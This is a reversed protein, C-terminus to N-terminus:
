TGTDKEAESSASDASAKQEAATWDRDQQGEEDDKDDLIFENVSGSLASSLSAVSEAETTLKAADEASSSASNQLSRAATLSESLKAENEKAKEMVEAAQGKVHQISQAVTTASQSARNMRSSIDDTVERQSNVATTISEVADHITTMLGTIQTIISTAGDSQNRMRGIRKKIEEAANGTEIALSRVQAAVIAFGKGSEGARAAEISANIALMNTQLTIKQILEIVTEIERSADSLAGMTAVAENSLTNAQETVESTSDTSVSIEKIAQMLGSIAETVSTVEGSMGEASDSILTVEELIRTATERSTRANDGMAEAHDRVETSLTNTGEAERKFHESLRELGASSRQMQEAHNRIGLVMNHVQNIFPNFLMALEGAEDGSTEDFRRSLNVQGNTMEMLSEQLAGTGLSAGHETVNLGTIEAEATVRMGVTVELLKFFALSVGFAWIFTVTVGELQVMAQAWVSPAALKDPMAFFALLVTGWAGCVGHVSVAGVVDDLKFVREIVRESFVVIVGASLGIILAGHAGVADCGATIAVLGGLSGNIPRHALKFDDLLLGTVLGGLGGFCAAILTNFIIHAIAPDSTTTSGGNFGIWGVWLAIAGATALVYSHGQIQNVEGNEGFKGIRAGLVIIGALAVWGGVSHVVTSGAFDIFGRDALYAPNDGNLLNGWAWHGSVPYVVLVIFIASLWYAHFKMREAVSGSMITAVTGAFVAQFVFFTYQWDEVESFAFSDTGILGAWSTGFMVGFGLLYFASVSVLFDIINQQAVNISNKSRSMGAEILLFGAQMVLVLAAAILTWTHNSANQLQDLTALVEELAPSQM